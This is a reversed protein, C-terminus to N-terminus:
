FIPCLKISWLDDFSFFNNALCAVLSGCFCMLYWWFLVLFWRGSCLFYRWFNGILACFVAGSIGSWLVFFLVLFERGSCLFYCWFTRLMLLFFSHRLIFSFTNTPWGELIVFKLPYWLIFPFTNTLWGELGETPWGRWVKLNWPIGCFSLVDIRPGGWWVKQPGGGGSRRMELSVAFHFSICEHAVQGRGDSESFMEFDLSTSSAWLLNSMSAASSDLLPGYLVFANSQGVYCCISTWIGKWVEKPLRRAKRKQFGAARLM